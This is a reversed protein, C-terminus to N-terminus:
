KSPQDTDDTTLPKIGFKRLSDSIANKASRDYQAKREKETKEFEQFSYEAIKEFFEELRKKKVPDDSLKNFVDKFTKELVEDLESSEAIGQLQGSIQTLQGGISTELDSQKALLNEMFQIVTNPLHNHLESQKLYHLVGAYLPSLTKGATDELNSFDKASAGLAAFLSAILNDTEQQANPQIQLLPENLRKLKNLNSISQKFAATTEDVSQQQFTIAEQQTVQFPAISDERALLQKSGDLSQLVNGGIEFTQDDPILYTTRTLPHYYITKM